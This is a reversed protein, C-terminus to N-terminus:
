ALRANWRQRLTRCNVNSVHLEQADTLICAKAEDQSVEHEVIRADRLFPQIEHSQKLIAAPLIALIRERRLYVNMGIHLYM